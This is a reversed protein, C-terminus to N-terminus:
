AKENEEEKKEPLAIKMGSNLLVVLPPAFIVELAEKEEDSNEDKKPTIGISIEVARPLSIKNAKEFALLSNAPPSRDVQFPDMLIRDVWKGTHTPRNNKDADQSQLKKVKYYRLKLEVVNEALLFFRTTEEDPNITSFIDGELIEKEMLILGQKGTEPHKGM